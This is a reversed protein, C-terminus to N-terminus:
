FRFITRSVMFWINRQVQERERLSHTNGSFSLVRLQNVPAIVSRIQISHTSHLISHTTEGFHHYELLVFFSAVVDRRLTYFNVM